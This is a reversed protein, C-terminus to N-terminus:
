RMRKVFGRVCQLKDFNDAANLSEGHACSRSTALVTFRAFAVSVLMFFVNAVNQRWEDHDACFEASQKFLGEVVEYNQIDWYIKAQGM